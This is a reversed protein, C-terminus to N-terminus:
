WASAVDTASAIDVEEIQPEISRKAKPQSQKKKQAKKTLYERRRRVYRICRAVCAAPLLSDDKVGFQLALKPKVDDDLDDLIATVLPRALARFSDEQFVGQNHYEGKFFKVDIGRAKLM